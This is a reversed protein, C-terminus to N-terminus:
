YHSGTEASKQHLSAVASPHTADYLLM